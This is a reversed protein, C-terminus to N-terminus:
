KVNAEFGSGIMERYVDFMEHKSLTAELVDFLEDIRRFHEQMEQLIEEKTRTM